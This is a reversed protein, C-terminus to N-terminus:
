PSASHHRLPHHRRRRLLCDSGALDGAGVAIRDGSRRGPYDAPPAATSCRRAHLACRAPASAAVSDDEAVAPRFLSTIPDSAPMASWITTVTAAGSVMVTRCGAVTVTRAATRPGTAGVIRGGRNAGSLPMRTSSDVRTPPPVIDRDSATMSCLYRTTACRAPCTIRGGISAVTPGILPREPGTRRVITLAGVM